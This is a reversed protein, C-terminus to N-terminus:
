YLSTHTDEQSVESKSMGDPPLSLLSRQNQSFGQPSILESLVVFSFSLLPGWSRWLNWNLTHGRSGIMILTIYSRWVKAAHKSASTYFRNECEYFTCALQTLSQGQLLGLSSNYSRAFCNM